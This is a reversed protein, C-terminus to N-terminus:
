HLKIQPETRRSLLRALTSLVVKGYGHLALLHMKHLSLYVLRAFLGEVLISGGTLRGMLSGVTSYAGLSVLSGFDRYTFERLPKGSLLLELQKIM